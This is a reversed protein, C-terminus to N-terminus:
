RQQKNRFFENTAIKIDIKKGRVLDRGEDIVDDLTKKRKRLDLIQRDIDNMERKITTMNNEIAALEKELEVIINGIEDTNKGAIIEEITM